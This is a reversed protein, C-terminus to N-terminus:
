RQGGRARRSTPRSSIAIPSLVLEHHLRPAPRTPIQKEFCASETDPDDVDARAPGMVIPAPTIRRPRSSTAPTLGDGPRADSRMAPSSEHGLLARAVYDHLAWAIAEFATAGTGSYFRAHAGDTIRATFTCGRKISECWVTLEVDARLM